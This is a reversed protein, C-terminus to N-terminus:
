NSNQSDNEASIPKSPDFQPESTNQNKGADYLAWAPPSASYTIEGTLRDLRAVRGDGLAMISYRNTIILATVILGAAVIVAAIVKKDM